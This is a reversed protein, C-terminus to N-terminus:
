GWALLPQIEKHPTVLIAQVPCKVECFCCLMCDEAFKIEPNKTEKSIRIVDMPCYNECMGCKICIDLNINEIAM